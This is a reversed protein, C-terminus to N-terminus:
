NHTTVRKGSCERVSLQKRHGDNAHLSAEHARLSCCCSRVILYDM